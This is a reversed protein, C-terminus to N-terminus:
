LESSKIEFGDKTVDIVFISSNTTSFCVISPPASFTPLNQGSITKLNKFKIVRFDEMDKETSRPFDGM